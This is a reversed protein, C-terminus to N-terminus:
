GHRIRIEEETKENYAKLAEADIAELEETKDQEDVRTYQVENWGNFFFEINKVNARMPMEPSDLAAAIGAWYAYRQSHVICEYTNKIDKFTGDTFIYRVGSGKLEASKIDGNM